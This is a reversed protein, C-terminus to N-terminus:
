MCEDEESQSLRGHEDFYKSKTVMHKRTGTRWSRKLKQYSNESRKKEKNQTLFVYYTMFLYNVNQEQNKVIISNITNHLTM